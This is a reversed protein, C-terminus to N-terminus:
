SLKGVILGAEHKSCGYEGRVPPLLPMVQMAAGPKPAFALPTPPNLQCLGVVEGAAQPGPNQEFWKCTDCRERM